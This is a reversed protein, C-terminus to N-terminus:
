CSGITEPQKPEAVNVTVAKGPPLPPTEPRLERLLKRGEVIEHGIFLVGAISLPLLYYLARFVLLVAAGQETTLTAGERCLFGIVIVELVAAAGPVHAFAAVVWALLFVGLFRLFDVGAGPPFLVYMVGAAVILDACSVAIQASSLKVPPLPIEWHLLKLPKRRVACLLLYVAVIALLFWALPRVDDVPLSRGFEAQIADNPIPFPDILFVVGALALVGLWFTVGLIAILQLIEFPTLKWASYLRYRAAAGGFLSGFNFSCAHGIFSAMALKAPPLSRGLYRLALYDYGFLIVYNVVILLLAIAIQGGSIARLSEVFAASDFGRLQRYLLGAAVAFIVLVAAIRLLHLWRKTTLKTSGGRM